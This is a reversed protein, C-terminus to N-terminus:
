CHAARRPEYLGVLPVSPTSSPRPDCRRRRPPIVRRGGSSARTASKFVRVVHSARAYTTRSRTPSPPSARTCAHSGDDDVTTSSPELAWRRKPAGSTIFRARTSEARTADLTAASISASRLIASTVVSARRRHISGVNTSANTARSSSSSSSSADGDDNTAHTTERRWPSPAVSADRRSTARAAAPVPAGRPSGSSWARCRADCSASASSASCRTAAITCPSTLGSFASTSRACRICSHSKSRAVEVERGATASASSSRASSFSSSSYRYAKQPVASYRAGSVM